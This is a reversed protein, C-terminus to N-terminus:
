SLLYKFSGQLDTLVIWGQDARQRHACLSPLVWQLSTTEPQASRALAVGPHHQSNQAKHVQRCACSAPDRILYGM